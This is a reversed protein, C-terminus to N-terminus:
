LQHKVTAAESSSNRLQENAISTASSIGVWSNYQQQEVVTAGCSNSWLQQEVVAGECSNSGLQHEDVTAVCSDYGDSSNSLLQQKVVAAKCSTSM